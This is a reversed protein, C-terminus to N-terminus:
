VQFVTSLLGEPGGRHTFRLRVTVGGGDQRFKRDEGTQIQGSPHDAKTRELKRRLVRGNGCRRRLGGRYGKAFRYGEVLGTLVVPGSVGEQAYQCVPGPLGHREEVQSAQVRVPFGSFLVIRFTRSWSGSCASASSASSATDRM